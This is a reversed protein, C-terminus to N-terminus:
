KGYNFKFNPQDHIIEYNFHSYKIADCTVCLTPEESSLLKSKEGKKKLIFVPMVWSHTQCDENGYYVLVSTLLEAFGQLIRDTPASM